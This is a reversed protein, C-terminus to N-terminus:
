GNIVEFIEICGGLLGNPSMPVTTEMLLVDVLYDTIIPLLPFSCNAAWCPQHFKRVKQGVAPIIRLAKRAQRYTIYSLQHIRAHLRTCTWLGKQVNCLGLMCRKSVPIERSQRCARPGCGLGPQPPRPTLIMGGYSTTLQDLEFLSGLSRAPSLRLVLYDSAGSGASGSRLLLPVLPCGLAAM